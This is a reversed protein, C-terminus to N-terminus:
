SVVTNTDLGRDLSTLVVMTSAASITSATTKTNRCVQRAVSIGISATGTDSIPV